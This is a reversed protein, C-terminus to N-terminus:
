GPTVLDKTFTTLVDCGDDTVVVLDEIRVGGRGALYVGPEITVVNGSALVDTSTPRLVPLEHIEMGVGHGLGHLVPAVGSEEIASRAIADLDAGAAGPRVAALAAEQAERCLDYARQLDDPLAGTAFTRTCDACYGDVLAGADVIVTEDPGIVRSGPHHHPLAANPGSAVITDFAAGDAGEDHFAQEVWWAVDAETRGVLEQGALREYVANTAGAARRITDLEGDDKVARLRLVVGKAPVLATGNAALSELGAVTVTDSEFAVPQEAVTGLRGGLDALLDRDIPLVEVGDLARAADLYRGDTLVVVTGRGVLAAANSSDLGTLYRVNSPNTALFTEVGLADLEDRLREVRANM